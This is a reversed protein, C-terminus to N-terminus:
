VSDNIHCVVHEPGNEEIESEDEEDVDLAVVTLLRLGVINRQNLGTNVYLQGDFVIENPQRSKYSSFIGAMKLCNRFEWIQINDIERFIRFLIFTRRQAIADFDFKNNDQFKIESSALSAVVISACSGKTWTFQQHYLIIFSFASRTHRHFGWSHSLDEELSPAIM